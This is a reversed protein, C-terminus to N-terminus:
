DGGLRAHDEPHALGVFLDDGDHLIQPRYVHVDEGKALVQAGRVAVDREVPVHRRLIESAEVLDAHLEAKPVDLAPGEHAGAVVSPLLDLRGAYSFSLPFRRTTAPAM